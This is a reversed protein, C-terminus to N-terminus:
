SFRKGLRHAVRLKDGLGGLHVKLESEHRADVYLCQDFPEVLRWGVDDRAGLRNHRSILPAMGHGEKGSTEEAKLREKSSQFGSINEMSCLAHASGRSSFECGNDGNRSKRQDHPRRRGIGLAKRALRDPDDHGVRRPRRIVDHHPERAAARPQIHSARVIIPSPMPTRAPSTRPM